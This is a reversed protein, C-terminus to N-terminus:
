RKRRRFWVIFGGIMFIFPIVIVTTLTLILIMSQPILLYEIELSKVPISVSSEHSVFSGLSSTFLKMNTGSVVVDASETFLDTSSYIVATSEEEGTTKVCKVGIDFPGELDDEQKDYSDGNEINDRVYSEDSSSLLVSIAVDDQEIETLGQSYPAFVYSGSNYVGSTITDYTVNPLLWFPDSYYNSKDPEIILGKTISVGYFDLLKNFNTLEEGTYASILFVDGGNEMYSLMKETDDESFDSAPANIIVCSADEPVTDYNMLNITEYEVNEKEISTIFSSEFSMEGHGEIMYIKPMEDSTVYAIASTIQGEGDYGTVSSSYTSYDFEYEYIDDYNVVKSRKDSEVIISNSSISTDTYKTYFKPNVAPDVYSVKIHSSLGEYNKLTEDLTTDSSNENSLVYINIDETLGEALAKTEDSLSYLQDATIDFVTYKAPLESVFINLLVVAATVVVVVTTSYTGLSLTKKSLQYRRKQISQVTFVLFLVIVSLYYVISTVHFSGNLLDDFRGIMDFASLIKTLLNGTSSIMNCIGSMVYTLFLVGFSIVAAIVQSE